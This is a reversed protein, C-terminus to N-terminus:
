IFLEKYLFGKNNTNKTSKSREILINLQSFFYKIKQTEKDKKLIDFRFLYEIFLDYDNLNFIKELKKIRFYFKKVYNKVYKGISMDGIGIVRFTHDLDKIFLNMILQKELSSSNKNSLKNGYFICFLLISIIEFSIQFNIKKYGFINYIIHKTLNVTEFYMSETLHNVKNEKAKFHYLFM